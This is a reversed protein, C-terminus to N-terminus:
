ILHGAAKEFCRQTKQKAPFARTYYFVYSPSSVTYHVLERRKESPKLPYGNLSAWGWEWMTAPSSINKLARQLSTHETYRQPDAQVSGFVRQEAQPFSFDESYITFFAPISPNGICPFCIEYLPHYCGPIVTSGSFAASFTGSLFPGASCLSASLERQCFPAGAPIHVELIPTGAALLSRRVRYGTSTHATSIGFAGAPLAGYAAASRELGM